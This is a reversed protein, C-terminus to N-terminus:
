KKLALVLDAQFSPEVCSMLTRIKSKIETTDGSITTIKNLPLDPHLQQYKKDEMDTAVPM